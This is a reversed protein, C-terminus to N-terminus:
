RARAATRPLLLFFPFDQSLLREDNLLRAGLAEFHALVRAAIAATTWAGHEPLETKAPDAEALERM